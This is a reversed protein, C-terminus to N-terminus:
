EQSQASQQHAAQWRSLLYDRPIPIVENIREIRKIRDLRFNRFDSRLECWAVLLQLADFYAVAVPWVIRSTEDDKLSTYEIRVKVHAQALRRLTAAHPSADAPDAGTLVTGGTLAGRLHPPLVDRIKALVDAAAQALQPEARAAVWQAGLAVADIEDNTLTLPPLEYGDTLVYGVGAEGLIPVGDRQLDAIDRYITRVSLGHRGAIAEATVARRAGRLLQIIQFLRDARRM